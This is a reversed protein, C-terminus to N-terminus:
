GMFNINRIVGLKKLRGDILEITNVIKQTTKELTNLREIVKELRDELREDGTKLTTSM